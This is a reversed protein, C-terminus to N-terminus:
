QGGLQYYEPGRVNHHLPLQAQSPADEPTAEDLRRQLISRISKVTLSNISGARVCAAEFREDGYMRALQQLQSCAKRASISYDPKDDFQADVAARSSAGLRRAWTDFRERTQAAYAQHKAPRHNPDTTHEGSMDSRMHAAVRRNRHFLEVTRASVRAEVKEGVLRHPVSYAHNRVYVHYDPGVKQEAVWEAFQFPRDPLPRLVPKDLQEFRSRRSGPLRKFSRDNLKALLEAIANNIEPLSFFRRRRLAMTIWRTVFLVGAEAKAKDQAKRVRAPSIVCEYHRSFELYTRNLEPLSGARTVAAKLNDPVIVQPVGGFFILMRNHAEIWDELKQSRSAWVFTYNSCGLVAVFVEAYRTQGTKEDIWPITTGAYDVFVCEGAYHVQRMTLDLKVVYYRYHYTFQSYSYADDPNTRRYEEWLELLTQYKAQMQEHVWAWDPLRKDSLRRKSTLFAAELAADDMTQIDSWALGLMKARKRYKRITGPAVRAHQAAKRHSWTPATVALRIGERMKSTDM